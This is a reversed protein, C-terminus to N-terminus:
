WRRGGSQGVSWTSPGCLWRGLLSFGRRGCEESVVRLEWVLCLSPYLMTHGFVGRQVAEISSAAIM